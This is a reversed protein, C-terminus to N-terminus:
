SKILAGNYAIIPVHVGLQEAIPLAAKYMRGTALVVKVGVSEMDHVAKINAKSVRGGEPLLTGDLDTVFLKVNMVIVGNILNSNGRLNYCTNKM